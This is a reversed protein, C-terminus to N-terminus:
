GEKTILSAEIEQLTRKAASVPDSDQVIPRGIVLRFAGLRIAEAPTMKRAQDDKHQYWNPRIGPVITPLVLSVLELELASCVVYSAGAVEADGALKEVQYDPLRGYIEECQEDSLSTLVTVAAIRGPLIKSAAEMMEVGGSAHVTVIDPATHSILAEKCWNAVTNPIDHWKLDLMINGYEGIQDLIDSGHRYFLSNIKYGWVHRQLDRAMRIADQRGLGDLAVIIPNEM